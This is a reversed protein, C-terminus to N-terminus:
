AICKRSFYWNSRQINISIHIDSRQCHYVFMVDNSFFCDSLQFKNKFINKVNLNSM